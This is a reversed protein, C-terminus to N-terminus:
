LMTRSLHEAVSREGILHTVCSRKGVISHKAYKHAIKAVCLRVCVCPSLANNYLMIPSDEISFEHSVEEIIICERYEKIIKCFASCLDRNDHLSGFLQDLRCLAARYNDDLNMKEFSRSFKVFIKRDRVEITGYIEHLIKRNEDSESLSETIGSSELAWMGPLDPAIDDPNASTMDCTVMEKKNASCNESGTVMYGFLTSLAFPDSPLRIGPKTSSVIDNYYYTGLLWDPVVEIDSSDLLNYSEANNRTAHHMDAESLRLFIIREM